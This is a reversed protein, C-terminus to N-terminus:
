FLLAWLLAFLPLARPLRRRRDRCLSRAARELDALRESVILELAPDLLAVGRAILQEFMHIGPEAGDAFRLQAFLVHTLVLHPAVPLLDGVM